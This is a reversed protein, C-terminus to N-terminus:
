VPLPLLRAVGGLQHRIRAQERRARREVAPHAPRVQGDARRARRRPVLVHGVRRRRRRPDIDDIANDPQGQVYTVGPERTLGNMEVEYLHRVTLEIDPVALLAEFVSRNLERQWDSLFGNALPTSPARVAGQAAAGVAPVPRARVAGLRGRLARQPLGDAPVGRRLGTRRRVHRARAEYGSDIGDYYAIVGVGHPYSFATAGLDVYRDIPPRYDPGSIELDSLYADALGGPAVLQYGAAELARAYPTGAALHHKIAVRSGCALLTTPWPLLSRYNAARVTRLAPRCQAPHGEEGAFLHHESRQRLSVGIPGIRVPEVIGLDRAPVGMVDARVCTRQRQAVDAPEGLALVHHERDIEVTAVDAFTDSCSMLTKFRLASKAITM